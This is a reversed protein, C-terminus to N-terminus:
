TFKNGQFLMFFVAFGCVGQREAPFSPIPKRDIHRCHQTGATKRNRGKGGAAIRQPHHVIKGVKDKGEDTCDTHNQQAPANYLNAERELAM